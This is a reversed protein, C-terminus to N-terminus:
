GKKKKLNIIIYYIFAGTFFVLFTTGLIIMMMVNRNRETDDNESSTDDLSVDEESTDNESSTQSENNNISPPKTQGGNNPRSGNNQNNPVQITIGEGQGPTANPDIVYGRQSSSATKKSTRTQNNPNNIAIFPINNKDAYKQATSNAMGYITLERGHRYFVDNALKIKENLITIKELNECYSFAGISLENVNQPLTIEQLNESKSFAHSDIVKLNNEFKVTELWHTEFFASNRITVVSKPVNYTRQTRGKPYAILVTKNKNFLVGGVDSFDKNNSNVKINELSSCDIFADFGINKVSSSINITGLRPCRSFAKGSIIEVSNPITLTELNFSQEFAGEEITHVPIRNLSSPLTISYNGSHVSIVTAKGGYVFYDIEGFSTTQTQINDIDENASAILIPSLSILILIM